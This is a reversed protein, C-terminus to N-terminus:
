STDSWIAHKEGKGHRNSREALLTFHVNRWVRPRVSGTGPQTARRGARAGLDDSCTTVHRSDNTCAAYRQGKKACFERTGFACGGLTARHRNAPVDSIGPCGIPIEMHDSSSRM